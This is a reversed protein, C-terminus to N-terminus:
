GESLLEEQGRFPCEINLLFSIPVRPAPIKASPIAAEAAGACAAVNVTLVVLLLPPPDSRLWILAAFRVAALSWIRNSMGPPLGCVIESAVSRGATM